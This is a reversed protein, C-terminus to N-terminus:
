AIAHIHIIFIQARFSMGVGSIWPPCIKGEGLSTVHPFFAYVPITITTCVIVSVM